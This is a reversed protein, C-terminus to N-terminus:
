VLDNGAMQSPPSLKDCDFSFIIGLDGHAVNMFNEEDRDDETGAFARAGDTFDECGALGQQQRWAWLELLYDIPMLVSGVEIAKGQFPSVLREGPARVEEGSSLSAQIVLGLGCAIGSEFLQFELQPM